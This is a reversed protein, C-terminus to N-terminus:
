RYMAERMRARATAIKAAVDRQQGSDQDPVSADTPSSRDRDWVGDLAAWVAAKAARAGDMERFFPRLAQEAEWRVVDRQGQYRAPLRSAVRRLARVAAVPNDADEVAREFRQLVNRPLVDGTHTESTTM